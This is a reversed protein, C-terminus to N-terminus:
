VTRVNMTVVLDNFDKDGGGYQDEVAFINNGNLKFHDIKDPNAGIYNFYAHIDKAGGGNTSNRDIFDTLSGQAVVVPAYIRGGTIDLNTKNDIKGAQLSNTLADRIAAAAYGTDSPKLTSGDALKISGIADEVLYFGINNTYAASGQTTIDAKLARGTYDTLDITRGEPATQSKSGIQNNAPTIVPPTVVNTTVKLDFNDAVTLGGQDTATVAINLDGVNGVAPNGAFTRTAPNFTLWTPLNNGNALKASYSLVDGSDPDTFTNAALTFNLATGAIITTNAISNAVVPPRNAPTPAITNNLLVSVNNSGRNVAVLDFRGDQNFDGITGFGPNNGVAFNNVPAFGGSGDGLLVSISDGLNNATAVDVIGDGDLDKVTLSFPKNGVAFETAPAFKGNGIGLLVGVSNVAYNDSALDPIGDQNFDGVVAIASKNGVAVDNVASFGGKGDGFLVSLNNSGSNAAILDSKGDGNADGVSVGIPSTGVALKIPTGFGGKGDGILVALNSGDDAVVLDPNGDDNFDGVAVDILKAGVAFDIAARFSGKGNGLLLSIKGDKYGSTVLDASGDGNFDATVITFPNAGVTFNTATSFSGKGNGFLVSVNATDYNGVALDANGDGNFDAVTASYPDSSVAFNTASTFNVTRTAMFNRIKIKSLTPL